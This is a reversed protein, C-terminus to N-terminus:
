VDLIFLRFQGDHHFIPLQKYVSPSYEPKLELDDKLFFQLLYVM